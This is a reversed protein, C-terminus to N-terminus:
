IIRGFTISNQDIMHQFRSAIPYILRFHRFCESIANDMLHTSEKQFLDVEALFFGYHSSCKKVENEFIYFFEGDQPISYFFM